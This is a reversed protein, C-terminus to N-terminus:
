LDQIKFCSYTYACVELHYRSSYPLRLVGPVSVHTEENHLRTDQGEHYDYLRSRSPPLSDYHFRGSAIDRHIAQMMPENSIARRQLQM